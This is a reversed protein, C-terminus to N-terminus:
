IKTESGNYRATTASYSRITGVNQGDRSLYWQTQVPPPPPVSPNSPPSNPNAATPSTRMNGAFEQAMVIGFGFDLGPNGGSSPNKASEELANAAQYQTYQQMNGILGM